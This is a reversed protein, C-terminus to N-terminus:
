LTLGSREEMAAEMEDVWKLFQASVVERAMISYRRLAEMVAEPSLDDSDEEDGVEVEIRLPQDLEVSAAILAMNSYAIAKGRGNPIPGRIEIQIPISRFAVVKRM